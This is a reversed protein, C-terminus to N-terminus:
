RIILESVERENHSEWNEHQWTCLEIKHRYMRDVISTSTKIGQKSSDADVMAIPLRLGERSYKRLRKESSQYRLSKLLSPLTAFIDMHEQDDSECQCWEM